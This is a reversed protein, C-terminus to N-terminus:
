RAEMGTKTSFCNAQAVLQGGGEDKAPRALQAAVRRCARETQFYIPTVQLAAPKV